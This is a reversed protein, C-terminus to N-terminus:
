MRHAKMAHEKLEAESHFHAGCVKCEFSGSKAAAKPHMSMEHERMATETTFKAGCEPCVFENTM